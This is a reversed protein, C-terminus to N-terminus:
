FALTVFSCIVWHCNFLWFAVITLSDMWILKIEFKDNIHITRKKTGKNVRYRFGRNHDSANLRECSMSCLGIFWKFFLDPSAQSLQSSFCCKLWTLFFMQLTTFVRNTNKKQRKNVSWVWSCTETLLPRANMRVILGCSVDPSHLLWSKAWLSYWQREGRTIM